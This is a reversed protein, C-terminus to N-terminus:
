EKLSLTVKEHFKHRLMYIKIKRLCFLLLAFVICLATINVYFINFVSFIYVPLYTMFFLCFFSLLLIFKVNEPKKAILIAINLLSIFQYFLFHIMVFVIIAEISIFRISIVRIFSLLFILSLYLAEAAIVATFESKTMWHVIKEPLIGNALYWTVRGSRKEELCVYDCCLIFAYLMNAIVTGFLVYTRIFQNQYEHYIECYQFLTLLLIVFMFYYSAKKKKSKVTYLYNASLRKYNMVMCLM